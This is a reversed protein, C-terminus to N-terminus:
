TKWLSFSVGDMSMWNSPWPLTEHVKGMWYTHKNSHRSTIYIWVDVTGVLFIVNQMRWGMNNRCDILFSSFLLFTARMQLFLFAYLIKTPHALLLLCSPFGLRLYSFLMLVSILFIPSFPTFKLVPFPLPSNHVHYYIWPEMFSPFKMVLNLILKWSPRYGV